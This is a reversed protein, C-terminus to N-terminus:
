IRDHRPAENAPWPWEIALGTQAVFRDRAEQLTGLHYSHARQKWIVLSARDRVANGGFPDRLHEGVASAERPRTPLAKVESTMFRGFAVPNMPRYEHRTKAHALYSQYLLDTTVVTNWEEFHDELGLQSVFVFGRMLVALWWDWKTELSLEQQTQLADTRPVARVNFKSIDHRLLDHLMAELGGSDLQARIAGFYDHDQQRADSVDLVFFRREDIAAPVVWDHNSAMLVHLLNATVKMDVYKPEISILPDTILSNLLGIGEPDGAFFAEDAFVFVCDRLHGNFQGTLHKRNTIYIAHQGLLRALAHGLIGKGVGRKGRLVVAVEGPQGPHQIMTAMWGILYDFWPEHGCCVNDLLHARLLGWDGAQAKVAFGRWLNLVDSSAHEGSPDFVIGDIYQHREPHSLWFDAQNVRKDGVTVFRNAYFV